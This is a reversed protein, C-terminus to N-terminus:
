SRGNIALRMLSFHRGLAEALAQYNLTAGVMDAIETDPQVQLDSAQPQASRLDAGAARLSEATAAGAAAAELRGRVSEFDLRLATAGPTSANAVNMSALKAQTAHMALALRVAEISIGQSM